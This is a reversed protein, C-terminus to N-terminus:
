LIGRAVNSHHAYQSHTEEPQRCWDTIDPIWFRSSIELPDSHYENLNPNGQGLNMPSEPASNLHLRTATLLRAARVSCGPTTEALNELMLYEDADSSWGYPDFSLQGSGSSMASPFLIQSPIRSPEIVSFRIHKASYENEVYKLFAEQYQTNYSAQHEPNIDM